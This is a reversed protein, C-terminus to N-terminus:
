IYSYIFSYRLSASDNLNDAKYNSSDLFRNSLDNSCTASQLFPRTVTKPKVNLYKNNISHELGSSSLSRTRTRNERNLSSSTDNPRSARETKLFESLSPKTAYIMKREIQKLNDERQEDLMVNEIEDIAENLKKTTETQNKAM